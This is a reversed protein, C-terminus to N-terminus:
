SGVQRGDWVLRRNKESGDWSELSQEITLQDENYLMTVSQVSFM